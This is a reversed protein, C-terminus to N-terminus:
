LNANFALAITKTILRTKMLKASESMPRSTKWQLSSVMQNTRPIPLDQNPKGEYKEMIM